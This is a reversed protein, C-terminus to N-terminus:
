SRTTRFSRTKGRRGNQGHRLSASRAIPRRRIQTPHPRSLTRLPPDITHPADRSGGAYTIASRIRPTGTLAHNTLDVGREACKDADREDMLGRMRDYEHALFADDLQLIFGADVIAKYEEKLADAIAVVIEEDSKYHANLWLGRASMPAAVPMFWGTVKVGKLAAKFNDIDQKVAEQGKYTIPAVCEWVM